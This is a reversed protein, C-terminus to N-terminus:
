AETSTQFSLTTPLASMASSSTNTPQLLLQPLDPMKHHGRGQHFPRTEEHVEPRKPLVGGNWGM